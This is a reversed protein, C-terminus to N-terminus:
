HRPSGINITSRRPTNPASNSGSTTTRPTSGRPTAGMPELTIEQDDRARGSGGVGNGYSLEEVPLMYAARVHSRCCLFSTFRACCGQSRRGRHNGISEYNSKCCGGGGGGSRGVKTRCCRGGCCCRGMVVGLLLGLLLPGILLMAFTASFAPLEQGNSQLVQWLLGWQADLMTGYHSTVNFCVATTGNFAGWVNEM